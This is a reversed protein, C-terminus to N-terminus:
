ALAVGSAVRGKSSSRSPTEEKEPLNGTSVLGDPQCMKHTGKDGQLSATPLPTVSLHARFRLVCVDKRDWTLFQFTVMEM